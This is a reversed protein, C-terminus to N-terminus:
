ARASVGSTRGHADIDQNFVFYFGNQCRVKSTRENFGGGCVELVAGGPLQAIVGLKARDDNTRVIQIASINKLLIVTRQVAPCSPIFLADINM